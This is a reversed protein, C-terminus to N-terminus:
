QNKSNRELERVRTRLDSIDKFASVIQQELAAIKQSNDDLKTDLGKIDAAMSTVLSSLHEIRDFLKQGLASDSKSSKNFASIVTIAALIVSALSVLNDLTLPDM